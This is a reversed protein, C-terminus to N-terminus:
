KLELDGNYMWDLFPIALKFNFKNYEPIKRWKLIIDRLNHIQIGPSEFGTISKTVDIEDPYSHIINIINDKIESIIAVHNYETSAILLTGPLLKESIENTDYFIDLINHIKYKDKNFYHYWMRYSGYYDHIYENDLRENGNNDKFNTISPKTLLGNDIFQFITRFIYSGIYLEFGEFKKFVPSLNFRIRCINILDICNCGYIKLIYIINEKNRIPLFYWGRNLKTNNDLLKEIYYYPIDNYLLSNLFNLFSEISLNVKTEDVTRNITQNNLLIINDKINNDELKTLTNCFLKLIKFSNLNKDM